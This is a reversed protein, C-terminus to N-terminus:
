LVKSYVDLIQEYHREESFRREVKERGALGMSRTQERDALAALLRGRLAEVDGAAFLWGDSEPDVLEPIGGIDSGIVPRSHAYAELVSMPCNEYWQSPLVCALSGGILRQLEKGGKPGLLRIHSLGRREVLAEAEARAEGEGVILLPTRGLPAAAEILTFIGKLREVRGFYLFYEGPEPNVAIQSVDVFNHVTSMKEAPVGLEALKRRQFHSVTIFRDIHDVVGGLLRAHYAEAASLLSRALSGRNCRGAVARWYDKGDCAQCLRGQADILTSVPCALRYEHLTQVVPIGARRLVPLISTTLQGYYIHLHALRPRHEALLRALALAAPRSHVFRVLDAPSPSAFDVPDPFYPAFPTPLNERHRAAFPIVRHGKKELLAALSFFYRDSGGRVFYNQSVKLVTSPM